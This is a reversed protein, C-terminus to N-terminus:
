LENFVRAAVRSLPSDDALFYTDEGRVYKSALEHLTASISSPIIRERNVYPNAGTV